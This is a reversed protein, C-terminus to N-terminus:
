NVNLTCPTYLYYLTVHCIKLKIRWCSDCSVAGTWLLSDYCLRRLMFFLLFFFKLLYTCYCAMILIWFFRGLLLFYENYFRVTAWVFSRLQESSHQPLFLTVWLVLRRSWSILGPCLVSELINWRILVFLALSWWSPFDPSLSKLTWKKDLHFILHETRSLILWFELHMGATTLQFPKM